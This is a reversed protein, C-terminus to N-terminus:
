QFVNVPHQHHFCQFHTAGRVKPTEARTMILKIAGNCQHPFSLCKSTKLGQDDMELCISHLYM